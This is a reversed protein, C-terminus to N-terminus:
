QILLRDGKFGAHTEAGSSVLESITVVTGQRAAYVGGVRFTGKESREKWEGINRRTLNLGKDQGRGIV